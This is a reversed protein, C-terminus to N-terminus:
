RGCGLVTRIRNADAIWQTAQAPTIGHGSLARVAAAFTSLADCTAKKQAPKTPDFQALAARLQALLQTQAAPPLKSAAVVDSILRDIQEKAGRVTVKFTGSSQNGVHDTATCSVTTTGIAFTAGSAPTCRVAPNPDAADAATATFSVAAGAPSTADVTKDAPLSLAPAKRDIKNGDVPGATACNGSSDCVQRTGTPANADESGAPVSTTLSFSAEAPDALGSGADSATCGIAVNAAHWQADASGCSIQPADTDAGGTPRALAFPSFATVTLCARNGVIQTVEPTLAGDIWHLLRPAPGGTFPVCVTAHDFTATTQLYYYVGDLTFGSPTSPGSTSTTLATVGGAASAFTITVPTGGTTTDVPSVLVNTGSPTQTGHTVTVTCVAAAFAAVTVSATTGPQSPGGDCSIATLYDDFSGDPSASVQHAGPTIIATAADGDGAAGRVPDGDISLDIRLPDNAPRLESRVTITTNRPQWDPEAENVGATNTLDTPTGGAAPVLFIDDLPTDRAFAIQQGDPSWAPDHDNEPGSTLPRTGGSGDANSVYLDADGGDPHRLYAIEQGNPSWAPEEEFLAPTDTVQTWQDVGNVPAAVIDLAQGRETQFAIRSGDPSWAPHAELAVDHTLNVPTGTGDANAMYIDSLDTYAVRTGDPSWTPQQATGSHTIRIAGSGDANAVYIEETAIPAGPPTDRTTTFAIRGGDPSWVPDFADAIALDSTGGAPDIVAVDNFNMTFAIKGNAGPVAAGAGAPSLATVLVAIAITFSSRAM